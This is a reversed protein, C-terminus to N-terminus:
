GPIGVVNVVVERTRPREHLDVVRDTIDVAHEHGRADVQIRV